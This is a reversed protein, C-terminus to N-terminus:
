ARVYGLNRMIDAHDTEIRQCQAESLVTRWQGARGTHFFAAQDNPGSARYGQAAEQESLTKFDSHAIARRLRAPEPDGGLFKIIRGFNKEPAALLDEYRVLLRKPAAVWSEVHRSWSGLFEFVQTATGQLAAGPNALYAIMEDLDRGTYRAYSVAVDRPDRVIYIAGATHAPTCLPIEHVAVRANHTKVFVLDDHLRTLDEHVSPRLLQVAETSAPAPDYKQFWPIACEVASFDSLRNIGHPTEAATIYNHLFARVWTNGSKPYSALWVIRGM